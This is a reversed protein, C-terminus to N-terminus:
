RILVVYGKKTKKQGKCDRRGDMCFNCPGPNAKAFAMGAKRKKTYFMM